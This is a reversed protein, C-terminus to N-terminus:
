TKRNSDKGLGWEPEGEFCLALGLEIDVAGRSCLGKSEMAPVVLHIVQWNLDDRSICCFHFIQLIIATEFDWQEEHTWLQCRYKNLCEFFANVISCDHPSDHSTVSCFYWRIPKSRAFGGQCARDNLYINVWESIDALVYKVTTGASQSAGRRFPTKAYVFRHLTVNNRYRPHCIQIHVKACPRVHKRVDM